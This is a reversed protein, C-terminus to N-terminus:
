IRLEESLEALVIVNRVEDAAKSIAPIFIKALPEECLFTPEKL